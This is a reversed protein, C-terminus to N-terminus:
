TWQLLICHIEIGAQGLSNMVLKIFDWGSIDWQNDMVSSRYTCWLTPCVVAARLLLRLWSCVPLHSHYLWFFFNTKTPLLIKNFCTSQFISNSISSIHSLKKSEIYTNHVKILRLKLPNHSSSNDKYSYIYEYNSVLNSHWISLNIISIWKDLIYWYLILM